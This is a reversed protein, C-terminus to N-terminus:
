IRKFKKRAMGLGAIGSGLLIMTCPEPVAAPQTNGSDLLNFSSDYIEFYQSGLPGIGTYHFTVGFGSLSGGVGIPTTYNYAEYYGGLNPASPSTLGGTWGGPQISSTLSYDSYNPSTINPFYVVFDELPVGLTNNFVTYDYKYDGAGLNTLTYPIQTAAAPLITGLVLMVGWFISLFRRVKM